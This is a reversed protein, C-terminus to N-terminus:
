SDIRFHIRLGVLEHSGAQLHVLEAYRLLVERVHHFDECSARVDVELSEM